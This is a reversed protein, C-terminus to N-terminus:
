APRLAFSVLVPLGALDEALGDPLSEALQAFGEALDTPIRVESTGERTSRVEVRLPLEAPALERDGRMVIPTGGRASELVLVTSEPQWARDGDVRPRDVRLFVGLGHLRAAAELRQVTQTVGFPSAQSLMTSRAPDEAVRGTGLAAMVVAIAGTRWYRIPQFRSAISSTM